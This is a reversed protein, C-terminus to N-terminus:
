SQHAGRTETALLGAHEVLTNLARQASSPLSSLSVITTLDNVTFIRTNGSLRAQQCVARSTRSAAVLASDRVVLPSEANYLDPTPPGIETLRRLGRKGWRSSVPCRSGNM